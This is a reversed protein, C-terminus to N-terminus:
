PICLKQGRYIIDANKIGNARIIGGMSTGYAGAIKALTDGSTVQHYVRCTGDFAPLTPDAGAVPPDQINTFNVEVGTYNDPVPYPFKVTVCKPTVHIWNDRDEECIEVAAGPFGIGADQLQAATFRYEGLANTVTETTLDTGVLKATIKWGALGVLQGKYPPVWAKFLKKGHITLSGAIEENEFIVDYRGCGNVIVTQPNAGRVKWGNQVAETVKYVGPPLKTFTVKGEADTVLTVPPMTNDARSLTVKWGGLPGLPVIMGQPDTGYGHKHVVITGYCAPARNKFVIPPRAGTESYQDLRLHLKQPTIPTWGPKVKETIIWDGPTLTFGARGSEDTTATQAKVFPDKVPTVTIQWGRGPTVTGDLGEEWKLVVIEILRRVKFVIRYCGKREAFTTLGTEAVGGVSAAPVIGEWEEPLQLQFNWDGAPLDTFKFYGDAGVSAQLPGVAAAAADTSANAGRVAEVVLPPNTKTGDVPMERHNIVYGDVCVAGKAQAIDNTTTTPGDAFAASALSLLMILAVVLGLVIPRHKM